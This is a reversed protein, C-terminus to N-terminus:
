KLYIPLLSCHFTRLYNDTTRIQSFLCELDPDFMFTTWDGLGGRALLQDMEKDGRSLLSSEDSHSYHTFVPVYSLQCLVIAATADVLGQIRNWCQTLQSHHCVGIIGARPLLLFLSLLELDGAVHSNQPKM